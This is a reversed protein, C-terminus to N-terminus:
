RTKSALKCWSDQKRGCHTPLFSTKINARPSQGEDKYLMCKAGQDVQRAM